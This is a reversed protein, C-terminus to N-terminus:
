DGHDGGPGHSGYYPENAPRNILQRPSNNEEIKSQKKERGGM